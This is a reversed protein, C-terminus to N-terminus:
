GDLRPFGHLLLLGFLGQGVTFDWLLALNDFSARRIGDLRGALRRALIFGAMVVLPLVLQVQLFSGLYVMAAYGSEHARIGTRWHGLFEVGAAAALAIAAAVILAILRLTSSRTLASGAARVAAASALLLVAATIPWALEPMKSAAANPWWHPFVTWLYLYSFVYALYLSGAVLLLVVMAWWGHSLSGSVYTPLRFGGGIDVPPVPEPDSGWMWAVVMVVAGIGCAIALALLKVTLLLFFAATLVAALFPTWGPGPIRLLYQPIAEIPSTIITERRHTPAGPLYYRGAEVDASLGPQDWLPDRSIVHPISRSAYSENPLWELTGANWVNGAQESLAPRLNKALDILFILVGAALIFAGATSILNLADWGVDTPYTYVRRPMGMLGTLHMPLFAINFGIFM